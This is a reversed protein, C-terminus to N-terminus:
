KIVGNWNQHEIAFSVKDIINKKWKLILSICRWSPTDLSMNNLLREQLHRQFKACCPPYVLPFPWFQSLRCCNSFTAIRFCPVVCVHVFVCIYFRYSIQIQLDTTRIYNYTWVWVCGMPTAYNLTLRGVNWLAFVGGWVVIFTLNLGRPACAYTFSIAFTLPQPAAFFRESYRRRERAYM